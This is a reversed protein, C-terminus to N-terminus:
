PNILAQMTTNFSLREISGDGIKYKVQMEQLKDSKLRSEYLYNFNRINKAKNNKM